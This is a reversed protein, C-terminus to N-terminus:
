PIILWDLVFKKVGVDYSNYPLCYPADSIFDPLLITLM